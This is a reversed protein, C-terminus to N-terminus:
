FQFYIFQGESSLVGFMLIYVTLFLYALYNVASSRIKMPYWEDIADKVLLILLSLGGFLM